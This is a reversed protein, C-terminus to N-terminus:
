ATIVATVELTETNQLGCDADARMSYEPKSKSRSLQTRVHSTDFSRVGFPSTDRGGSCDTYTSVRLILLTLNKSPHSQARFRSGICRQVNPKPDAPLRDKSQCESVDKQLFHCRLCRRQHESIVLIFYQFACVISQRKM